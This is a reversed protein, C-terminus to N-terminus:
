KLQPKAASTEAPTDSASCFARQEVNSQATQWINTWRATANKRWQTAQKGGTASSGIDGVGEMVEGTATFVADKAGGVVSVGMEKVGKGMDKPDLTALGKATKWLGSGFSDVAKAAEQAVEGVVEGASIMTQLGASSLNKLTNGVMGGSRAVLWILAKDDTSIEPKYLTGRITASHEYGAITSIKIQGNLNSRDGCMDIGLDIANGGIVAATGKPLVPQLPALEFGALRFSSALSPNGGAIEEVDALLGFRAPQAPAQQIHGLAEIHGPRNGDDHDGFRLDRGVLSSVLIKMRNTSGSSDRIDISAHLNTFLLEDIAYRGVKGDPEEAPQPAEDPRTKVIVAEVNSVSNTDARLDIEAEDVTISDVRLTDGFASQIALDV